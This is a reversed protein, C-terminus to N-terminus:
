RIGARQYTDEIRQDYAKRKGPCIRRFFRYLEIELLLGEILAQKLDKSQKVDFVIHRTNILDPEIEDRVREINMVTVKGGVSTFKGMERAKRIINKTMEMVEPDDVKKDMSGSLDSRGVTISHIKEFYPSNYIIDLNEYATITEINIAKEITRGYYEEMEGVASVFNRLGYVSEVMPGLVKDVEKDLVFRLDNRAEPGGIKVTLPMIGRTIKRLFGIEPFSLDEVETGGKLGIIGYNEKLYILKKRLKKKTLTM